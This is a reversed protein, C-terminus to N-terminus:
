IGYPEVVAYRSRCRYWANQDTETTLTDMLHQMAQLEPIGALEAVKDDELGTKVLCLTSVTHTPDLSLIATASAGDNLLLHSYLLTQNEHEFVAIRGLDGTVSNTRWPMAANLPEDPRIHIATLGDPGDSSLWGLLATESDSQDLTTADFLHYDIRQWIAQKWQHRDILTDIDGDNDIDADLFGLNGGHFSALATLDPRNETRYTQEWPVFAIWTPFVPDKNELFTQTEFELLKACLDPREDRLLQPASFPMVEALPWAGPQQAAASLYAGSLTAALIGLLIRLRMIDGITAAYILKSILRDSSQTSRPM